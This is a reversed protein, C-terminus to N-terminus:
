HPTLVRDGRKLANAELIRLVALQKEKSAEHEATSNWGKADGEQRRVAENEADRALKVDLLDFDLDISYSLVETNDQKSAHVSLVALVGDGTWRWLGGERALAIWDEPPIKYDPDITTALSSIEGNEDLLSSRGTLLTDWASDYYREWKGKQNQFQAVTSEVFEQAQADTEFDKNLQLRISEVEINKSRKEDANMAFSFIPQWIIEYGNRVYHAPIHPPIFNVDYTIFGNVKSASFKPVGSKRATDVINEGLDFKIEPMNKKGPMQTPFFPLALSASVLALKKLSLRRM